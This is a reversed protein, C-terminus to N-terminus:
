HQKILVVESGNSRFIVDDMFSTMLMLGRCQELEFSEPTGPAPNMRTTQGHGSHSIAIRTDANGISVMLTVKEGRYNADKARVHLEEVADADDALYRSVLNEADAIQLNGFCVANFLGSAVATGVRLRQTPDLLGQAALSQVITRVQPGIANPHSPLIVTYEQHNLSKSISDIADDSRAMLRTQRVVRLLLKALMSKPVFDTAGKALADVALSESGRATVVVTPITPYKEAVTSVLECGNIEPMQLDTVILEPPSTGIAELARCGDEVHTVDHGGDTLIRSMLAAHTPSDEALLIKAM